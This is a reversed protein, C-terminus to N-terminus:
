QPGSGEDVDDAVCGVHDFRATTAHRGADSVRLQERDVTACRCEAPSTRVRDIADVKVIEAVVKDPTRVWTSWRAM